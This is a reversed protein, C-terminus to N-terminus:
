RRVPPPMWARCPPLRPPSPPSWRSLQPPPPPSPPWGVVPGDRRRRWPTPVPSLPPHHAPRTHSPPIFPPTPFLSLPHKPIPPPPPHPSSRQCIPSPRAGGCHPRAPPIPWACHIASCRRSAWVGLRRPSGCNVLCSPHGRRVDAAGCHCVCAVTGLPRQRSDVAAPPWPVRRARRPLRLPRRRAACRGSGAGGVRGWALADPGAAPRRVHACRAASRVASAHVAAAGRRGADPQPWRTAHPPVPRTCYPPPCGVDSLVGGARRPADVRAAADLTPPAGRWGCQAVTATATHRQRQWDGRSPKPLPVLAPGSASEESTHAAAPRQTAATAAATLAATSLRPAVGTPLCAVVRVRGRCGIEGALDSHPAPSHTSRPRAEAM